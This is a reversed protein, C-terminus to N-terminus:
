KTLVFDFCKRGVLSPTPTPTVGQERVTSPALPRRPLGPREFLHQAFRKEEGEEESDILRFAVIAGQPYSVSRGM